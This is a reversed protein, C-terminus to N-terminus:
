LREPIPDDARLRIAGSALRRWGSRDNELVGYGLLRSGPDLGLVRMSTDRTPVRDPIWEPASVTRYSLPPFTLAGRGISASRFAGDGRLILGPSAGANGRSDRLEGVGQHRRRQGRASRDAQARQGSRERGARRHQVA